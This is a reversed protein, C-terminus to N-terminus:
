ALFYVHKLLRIVQLIENLGNKLLGMQITLCKHKATVPTKIVTLGYLYDQLHCGGITHRPDQHAPM